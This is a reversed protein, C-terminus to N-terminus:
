HFDNQVSKQLTTSFSNTFVEGRKTIYGINNNEFITKIYSNFKKNSFKDKFSIASQTNTADTIMDVLEPSDTEYIKVTLYIDNLKLKDKLFEQYLLYTTQLGNVIVPNKTPIIYQGLQPNHPLKFEECIITIGNNLFPFYFNKESQITELIKENTLNKRGLFWRINDSFAKEITGNVRLEEELLECLEHAHLRFIAAKVEYV